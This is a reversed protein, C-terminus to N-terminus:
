RMLFRLSESLKSESLLPCGHERAYPCGDVASTTTTTSENKSRKSKDCTSVVRRSHGSQIGDTPPSYTRVRWLIDRRVYVDDTTIMVTRAHKPTYLWGGNVNAIGVVDAMGM